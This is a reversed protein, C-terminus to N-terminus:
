LKSKMNDNMEELKENCKMEEELLDELQKEMKTEYKSIEINHIENIADSDFLHNAAHKVSQIITSFDASSCSMNKAHAFVTNRIVRFKDIEECELEQDVPISKDRRPIILKLNSFLLVFMLTTTDWGEENGELIKKEISSDRPFKDRNKKLIEHYIFTGNTKDSKWPKSPFNEDWKKVFFIRLHKPVINLIIKTLKVFNKEEEDLEM